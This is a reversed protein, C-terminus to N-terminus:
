HKWTNMRMLQAEWAHTLSNLGSDCLPQKIWKALKSYVTSSLSLIGTLSQTPHNLTWDMQKWFEILSKLFVDLWFRVTLSLFNLASEMLKQHVKRVRAQFKILVVLKVLMRIRPNEEKLKSRPKLYQRRRTRRTEAWRLWPLMSVELTTSRWGPWSIRMVSKESRRQRSCRASTKAMAVTVPKVKTQETAKVLNLAPSRNLKTVEKCTESLLEEPTPTAKAMTPKKKILFQSTKKLKNIFNNTFTFELFKSSRHLM